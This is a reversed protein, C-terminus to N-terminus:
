KADAADVALDAAAPPTDAVPAADATSAVAQASAPASVKKAASRLPAGKAASAVAAATAKRMVALKEDIADFRTHVDAIAQDFRAAHDQAFLSLAGKVEETIHPLDDRIEDVIANKIKFVEPEVASLVSKLEEETSAADTRARHLFNSIAKAISM